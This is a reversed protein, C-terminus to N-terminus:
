LSIEALISVFNKRRDLDNPFNDCMRLVASLLFYTHQRNQLFDWNNLIHTFITSALVDNPSNKMKKLIRITPTLDITPNSKKSFELARIVSELEMISYHYDREFGDFAYDNCKFCRECFYVILLVNTPLEDWESITGLYNITAEVSDVLSYNCCRIQEILFSINLNFSNINM